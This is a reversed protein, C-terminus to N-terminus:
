ASASMADAARALQRLLGIDYAPVSTAAAARARASAWHAGRVPVGDADGIGLAALARRALALNGQQRDLLLYVWAGNSGWTPVTSLVHCQEVTNIVVEAATAHYSLLAHLKPVTEAMTPCTGTADVSRAREVVPRGTAADIVCVGVVGPMESLEFAATLAQALASAAIGHRHDAPLVRLRGAVAAPAQPASARRSSHPVPQSM